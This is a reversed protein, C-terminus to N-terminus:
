FLQRHTKILMEAAIGGFLQHHTKILTEAAIGGFRQYSAAKLNVHVVITFMKCLEAFVAIDSPNFISEKKSRLM